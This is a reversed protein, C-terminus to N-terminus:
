DFYQGVDHGNYQKKVSLLISGDEQTQKSIIKYKTKSRDLQQMYRDCEENVLNVADARPLEEKLMFHITQELCAYRIRKM